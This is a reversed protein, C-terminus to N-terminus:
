WDTVFLFVTVSYCMFM